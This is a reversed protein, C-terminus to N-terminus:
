AYFVQGWEEEVKDLMFYRVGNKRTTRPMKIRGPEWNISRIQINSAIHMLTLSLTGTGM